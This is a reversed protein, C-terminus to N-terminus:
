VYQFQIEKKPETKTIIRPPVTKSSSPPMLAKHLTKPKIENPDWSIYIVCVHPPPLLQILFGTKRLQEILYNTCDHINYLPYGVVLGPIEYFTNMGGFQGINRIRRHCLELVKDFVQKKNTDKKKRMQYLENLSIHPKSM